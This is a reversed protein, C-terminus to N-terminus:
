ARVGKLLEDIARNVRVRGHKNLLYLMAKMIEPNAYGKANDRVTARILRLIIWDEATMEKM